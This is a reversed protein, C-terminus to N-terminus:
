IVGLRPMNPLDDFCCIMRAPMNNPTIAVEARGPEPVMSRLLLGLHQVPGALCPVHAQRRSTRARTLIPLAADFSEM